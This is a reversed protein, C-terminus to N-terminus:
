ITDNQAMEADQAMQPPDRPSNLIARLLDCMQGDGSERSSVSEQILNLGDMEGPTDDSPSDIRRFLRLLFGRRGALEKTSGDAFTLTVSERANTM